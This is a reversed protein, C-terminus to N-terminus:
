NNVGGTRTFSAILQQCHHTATQATNACVEVTPHLDPNFTGIMTPGTFTLPPLFYFHPNGTTAGDLQSFATRARRDVDTLPEDQCASVAIAAAFAFAVGGIRPFM